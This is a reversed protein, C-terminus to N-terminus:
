EDQSPLVSELDAPLDASVAPDGGSIEPLTQGSRMSSFRAETAVCQRLLRIALLCRRLTWGSAILCAVARPWHVVGHWFPPYCFVVAGAASAATLVGHIAIEARMVRWGHKALASRASLNAVERFADLRERAVHKDQHHTPAAALHLQNESENEEALDEFDGTDAAPPEDSFVPSENVASRTNSGGYAESVTEHQQSSGQRTRALLREMYSAISDDVPASHLPAGTMAETIPESEVGPMEGPQGEAIPTELLTQIRSRLVAIDEQAEAPIAAPALEEKPVNAILQEVTVQPKTEVVPQSPQEAGEPKDCFDEPLNFLRALEARLTNVSDVIPKESDASPVGTESAADTPAADATAELRQRDAEPLLQSLEFGGWEDTFELNDPSSSDNADPRFTSEAPSAQVSSAALQPAMAAAQRPAHEWEEWKSAAHQAAAPSLAAVAPRDVLEDDHTAHPQTVDRSSDHSTYEATRQGPAAARLQERELAAAALEQQLTAQLQMVTEHETQVARSQTELRGYQQERDHEWQAQQAAFLQRDSELARQAAYLDRELQEIRQQEAIASRHREELEEIWATAEVSGGSLSARVARSAEFAARDSALRNRETHVSERERRLAACEGDLAAALDGVRRHESELSCFDQDLKRRREALEDWKSERERLWEHSQEAFRRREEQLERRAALLESEAQARQHLSAALQEQQRRLEALLEETETDSTQQRARWESREEEFEAHEDALASREAEVEARAALVQSREVELQQVRTTWEGRQREIEAFQETLEATL